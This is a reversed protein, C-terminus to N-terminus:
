YLGLCNKCWEFQVPSCNLFRMAGMQGGQPFFTIAMYLKVQKKARNQSFWLAGLVSCCVSIFSSICIESFFTTIDKFSYSKKGLPPLRPCCSKSLLFFKSVFSTFIPEPQILELNVWKWALVGLSSYCTMDRYSHFSWKEWCVLQGPTERGIGIGLLLLLISYYYAVPRSDGKRHWYGTGIVKVKVPSSYIFFLPQFQLDSKQM